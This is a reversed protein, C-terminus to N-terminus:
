DIRRDKEDELLKNLAKMTPSINKDDIILMSNNLPKKLSKNILDLGNHLEVHPLSYIYNNKGHINSPKVKPKESM